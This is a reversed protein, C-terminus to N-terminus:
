ENSDKLYQIIEKEMNKEDGPRFGVHRYIIENDQNVILFTPISSINLRSLLSGDPDKLVPYPINNSKVFPKVKASNRHSDVNLGIFAVGREKYKQYLAEMKPLARKCPACWTAWFDIVTLEEGKLEDFSRWQDNLNKLRFAPIESGAGALTLTIMTLLLIVVMKKLMMM